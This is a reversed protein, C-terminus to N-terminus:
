ITRPIHQAKNLQHQTQQVDKYTHQPQLNTTITQKKKELLLRCVLHANTVPNLRTSKRDKAPSRSHSLRVTISKTASTSSVNSMMMLMFWCASISFTPWSM